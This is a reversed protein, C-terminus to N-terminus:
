KSATYKYVLSANKQLLSQKILEHGCDLAGLDVGNQCICCDEADLDVSVSAYTKQNLHKYNYEKTLRTNVNGIREELALLEQVFM